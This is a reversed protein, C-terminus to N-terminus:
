GGAATLRVAGDAEFRIQLGQQVAQARLQNQLAPDPPSRFKLQLEADRYEIGALIGVPAAALLQGALANLATFDSASAQGARARLRVLERQTQVIPDVMEAEAFASRFATTMRARLEGAESQLKLWYGNMGAVFVALAVAAWALPARWARLSSRLRAPDNFATGRAFAGQLLNVAGDAAAPDLPQEAIEVAVGLAEAMAALRPAQPGYARIRHRACARLALRLAAPPEGSDDLECAVGDHQATRVALRGRCAFASLVDATPPPLVYIASYAARPREGTGSLVDLLRNLLGRDIAAVPLPPPAGGARDAGRGAPMFAFHCQAPDALLRDELLNPLALRLKGESLRPAAVEAQFVDGCDFVLDMRQCRPLLTISVDGSRMRGDSDLAVYGVVTAESLKSTGALSQHPPAFVWLRQAVARDSSLTRTAM